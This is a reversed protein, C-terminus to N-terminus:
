RAQPSGPPPEPWRSEEQAAPPPASSRSRQQSGPPPEPWRSQSVAPAPSAARQGRPRAPEVPPPPAPEPPPQYGRALEAPVGQPVGPVGDPFVPKREGPLPKKTNFWNEPDFNECGGLALGFLLSGEGEVFPTMLQLGGGPGDSDVGGFVDITAPYNPQALAAPGVLTSALLLAAFPFRRHM